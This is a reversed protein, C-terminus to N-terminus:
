VNNMLDTYIKTLEKKIEDMVFYKLVRRRANQAYQNRMSDDTLLSDIADALLRSNGNKVEIGTEGNLSVWNVGSGAITFTVTPCYCYMAEALVLGFAENKTLSPFAFVDAAYFCCKLEDQNIRGLWKIRESLYTRKLDDTLPGNGAIVFVCDSTIFREAELLHVIGKYKVHRGVFFVIKKNQYKKKVADVNEAEGEDLMFLSPEIASPLVKIKAMYGGLPKSAIGYNPSTTLILNARDLLKREIGKVFQYLFNQEVIDSHWHVVLHVNRPMLLVLFFAILPNPYHLHIIDPSYEKLITKLRRYYSISIPQSAIKGLTAVRTVKITNVYDIETNNRTNFCVVQHEFQPLSDVIYKSTSEIGGDVPYYFKAIHLIKM